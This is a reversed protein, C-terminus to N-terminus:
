GAEVARRVAGRPEPDNYRGFSPSVAMSAFAAFLFAM